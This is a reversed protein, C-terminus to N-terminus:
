RFRVPCRVGERPIIYRLVFGTVFVVDNDRVNGRINDPLLDNGFGEYSTYVEGDRGLYTRLPPVYNTTGDLRATNLPNSRDHMAQALFDQETPDSATFIGPDVYKRSVDDLYDTLFFYYSFEFSIDWRPGLKKRVGFGFPFAIQTLSYRDQMMQGTNPDIRGQGETGLPQLSVWQDPEWLPEEGTYTFEPTKAKPDHFVAGVGAFIYPIFQNPRDYFETNMKDRSILDFQLKFMGMFLDNRFHLNRIYRFQNNDDSPSASLSDAGMIRGYSLSLGWSWQPRVRKQLEVGIGLRTFQIDTSTFNQQPTIDGFYNMAGLNLGVSYYRKRKSWVWRHNHPGQRQGYHYKNGSQAQVHSPYEASLFGFFLLLCLIKKM